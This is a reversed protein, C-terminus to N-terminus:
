SSPDAAAEVDVEDVCSQSPDYGDEGYWPGEHVSV